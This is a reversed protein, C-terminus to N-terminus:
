PKAQTQKMQAQKIQTQKAQIHKVHHIFSSKPSQQCAEVVLPTATEIGQIDLTPDKVKDHQTIIEAAGVATPYFTEDMALFNNCTWHSLPKNETTALASTATLSVMVLGAFFVKKMYHGRSTLYHYRAYLVQYIFIYAIYKLYAM